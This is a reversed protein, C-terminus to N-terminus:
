NTEVIQLLVTINTTCLLCTSFCIGTCVRQDFLIVKVIYGYFIGSNVIM